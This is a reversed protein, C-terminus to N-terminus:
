RIKAGRMSSPRACPTVLVAFWREDQEWVLDVACDAEAAVREVDDSAVEAWPFWDSVRDPAELRMLTRTSRSGPPALEVLIRGYPVLLAAIRRLLRVPEGGIGINGDLLLASPWHGSAPLEDFISAVIATAGNGRALEIAAPSIDVGLGFVGQRALAHLHRGPGCGVDLVPGEIASLAMEDTLDATALWRAIGVPRISGDSLRAVAEIEGALLEAYLALASSM